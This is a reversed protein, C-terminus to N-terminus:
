NFSHTKFINIILTKERSSQAELFFVCENLWWWVPVFALCFLFSSKLTELSNTTPTKLIWICTTHSYCCSWKVRWSINCLGVSLRSKYVSQWARTRRWKKSTEKAQSWLLHNIILYIKWMPNLNYTIKCGFFRVSFSIGFVWLIREVWLYIDYFRQFESARLNNLMMRELSYFLEFIYLAPLRTQL